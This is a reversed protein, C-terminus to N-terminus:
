SIRKVSGDRLTFVATQTDAYVTEAGGPIHFLNYPETQTTVIYYDSPLTEIGQARCSPLMVLQHRSYIDLSITDDGALFLLLGTNDMKASVAYGDEQPLQVLQVSLASGMSLSCPEMPLYQQAYLLYDKADPADPACIMHIEAERCVPELAASVRSGLVALELERIGYDMLVQAVSEGERQTRIEGMLFHTRGQSVIVCGTDEPVVVRILEATILQYGMWSVCFSIVSWMAASFIVGARERHRVCVVAMGMTGVFWIAIWGMGSSVVAFPLEGLVGLLLRLLGTVGQALWLLVTGFLPINSAISVLIGSLLMPTLLVAALLTSIPSLLSISYGAVWSIPLVALSAVISTCLSRVALIGLKRGAASIGKHDKEGSTLGLRGVFFNSLPQAFLLIALTASASYWLSLSAACLPSWCVLLFLAMGLANVGDYRRFIAESLLLLSWMVAARLVSYPAGTLMAYAVIGVFCVASRVPPSFRRVPLRLLSAVVSLHFGSIALLHSLGCRTIQRQIQDSLHSRDACLMACILAGGDNPMAFWIRRSWQRRLISFRTELRLSQAPSFQASVVRGRLFIGSAASVAQQWSSPNEVPYFYATGSLNEGLEGAALDSGAWLQMKVPGDLNSGPLSASLTYCVSNHDVTIDTIQGEVQWENGGYAIAPQLQWVATVAYRGMAVAVAALFFLIQKRNPFRGTLQKGAGTLLIGLFCCLALSGLLVAPMPGIWAALAAAIFASFGAVAMPPM